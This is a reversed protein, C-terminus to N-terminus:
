GLLFATGFQTTKVKPRPSMLFLRLSSPSLESFVENGIISEWLDAFLKKIKAIEGGIYQGIVRGVAIVTQSFEEVAQM